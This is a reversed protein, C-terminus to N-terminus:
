EDRTSIPTRATATAVAFISWDTNTSRPSLFYEIIMPAGAVEITYARATLSPSAIERTTVQHTPAHQSAPAHAPVPGKSNPFPHRAAEVRRADTAPMPSVSLTVGRKKLTVANPKRSALRWDDPIDIQITPYHAYVDMPDIPADLWEHLDASRLLGHLTWLPLASQDRAADLNNLWAEFREAHEAFAETAATDAPHFQARLASLFVSLDADGSELANPDQSALSEAPARLYRLENPLAALLQSFQARNPESM